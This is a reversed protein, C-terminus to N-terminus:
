VNHWIELASYILGCKDMNEHVRLITYTRITSTGTIHLVMYM